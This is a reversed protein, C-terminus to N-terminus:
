IPTSRAIVRKALLGIECSEGNANVISEDGGTRAPASLCEKGGVKVFRLDFFTRRVMVCRCEPCKRDSVPKAYIKDICAGCLMLECEEKPMPVLVLITQALNAVPVFVM